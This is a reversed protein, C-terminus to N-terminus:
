TTPAPAAPIANVSASISLASTLTWCGNVSLGPTDFRAM